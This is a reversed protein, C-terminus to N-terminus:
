QEEDAHMVHIMRHVWPAIVVGMVAVFFL